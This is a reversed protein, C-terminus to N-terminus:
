LHTSARFLCKELFSMCIDLLSMLIHEVNSIILSICIFSCSPIVECQDSHGDDVFLSHQLPHPSFPARICQKSRLNFCSSHLTTHCNRLFSFQSSGIRDQLGVGPCIDPSFWLAFHYARQDENHCQKYYCLTYAVQIDMSLPISLSFTYICLPIKM